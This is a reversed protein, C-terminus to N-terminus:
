AVRHGVHELLKRAMFIETAHMSQLTAGGIHPTVILNFHQSLEAMEAVRTSGVTEGEVVDLAVGAFHGVAILRLLAAEDILEGRAINVLHKGGMGELLSASIISPQGNTYSAAVVVLDSAAVLEAKTPVRVAGHLEPITADTDEFSVQAGLATLARALWQGVRGFGIIGVRM